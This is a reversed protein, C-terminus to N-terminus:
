ATPPPQAPQDTTLSLVRQRYRHHNRYGYGRRKMVKIKNTIGEAFGNTHPADHYALIPERWHSLTRWLDTFEVIGSEHVHHIWSDLRHGAETRTEAQYIESFAEKLWWAVGLEPHLKFLQDLEHQQRQTLDRRRTALTWRARKVEPDFRPNHQRARGGDRGVVKPRRGLRIRVKQCAADVARQVHFRDVVIRADPLIDTVAKRFPWFMDIVVTEISGRWDPPMSALVRRASTRSRGEVMELIRRQEPATLVTHYRAPRAFSAEDLSIVRPPVLMPTMAPRTTDYCDAVRWWSVRERVAVDAWPERCAAEALRSRFRRTIRKQGLLEPHRERSTRDCDRCRFRRQAWVLVMPFRCGTDRIRRRCRGHVTVDVSGCHFCARPFLSEVHVELVGDVVESGVVEFDTLDLPVEIRDGM